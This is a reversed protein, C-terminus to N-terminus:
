AAAIHRERKGSNELYDAWAQMMQRRERLFKARDYAADNRDRPAHALQRDVIEHPYHLEEKITTMALARFGHGTMRGKYGLRELAKLITNNSMHQAPKAVSAFVWPSSSNLLLCEDLIAIAQRALPVIHERKMKMREAPIVWEGRDLDIEDWTARILEGTRVFTLMLFRIALRTHAFLRADNSELAKLFDNIEQPELAAYHSRKAPRLAGKLDAAPNRETRQTVIAYRFIQSCYQMARHAMERAGRKGIKRLADLIQMPSIESIPLRGVIPFIDSELRHVIDQGYSPTWKELNTAHWERAVHEFSNETAQLQRERFRRKAVSPDNGSALIKKAVARKDRAESLSTQPYLGFALVKEKGAFRYKLRWYRGGNPMVQLYMGEGDVLRYSKAKARANRCTVDSLSM